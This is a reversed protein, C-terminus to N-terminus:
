EKTGTIQKIQDLAYECKAKIDTELELGMEYTENIWSITELAVDLAQKTKTLEQELKAIEKVFYKYGNDQMERIVQYNHNMIMVQEKLEAKTKDAM